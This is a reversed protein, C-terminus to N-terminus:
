PKLTRVTAGADFLSRGLGRRNCFLYWEDGGGGQARQLLSGWGTTRAAMSQVVPFM